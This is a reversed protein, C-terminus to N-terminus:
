AHRLAVSEWQSLVRLLAILLREKDARYWRKTRHAQTATRHEIETRTPPAIRIYASAQTTAAPM